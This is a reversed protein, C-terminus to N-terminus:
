QVVGHLNTPPSPAPTQYAGADWAGSAPRPKGAADFCLAGLGPNPQGGCVTYLNTGRGRAPGNKVIAGTSNDLVASASATYTGHCDFGGGNPCKGGNATQWASLTLAGAGDYGWPYPSEPNVATYVNYDVAPLVPVPTFFNMQSGGCTSVINNKAVFGTVGTTAIICAGRIDPGIPYAGILTNNFVGLNNGPSILDIGGVAPHVAKVLNNFIYLNNLTISLEARIVWSSASIGDAIIFNNYAYINTVTGTSDGYAHIFNHHFYGTTTDWVNFGSAQNGFVYINSCSTTACGLLMMWNNNYTNNNSVTLNSANIQLGFDSDHLTDHDITISANRADNAVYVEANSEGSTDNGANDHVYIPGIALNEVLINTNGGSGYIGYGNRQNAYGLSASGNNTSGVSGVNNGNITIFSNGGLNICGTGPCYPLSINAGNEFSITIVSGSSGSAGVLLASTITGCLKYTNGAAWSVSAAATTSQTGDAGCSVSGGSQSVYTTAAYLPLAFILPILCLYRAVKM